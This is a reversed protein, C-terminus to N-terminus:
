RPWLQGFPRRRTVGTGWTPPQGCWHGGDPEMFTSVIRRDHAMVMLRSAGPLGAGTLRLILESVALSSIMTTYAIVSPDSMDLEPAYGEAKLEELEDPELQEARLRAQDIVEACQVCASGPVQVDLRGFIGRLNGDLSDLVVAMDLVPILCWYTLRAIALRGSEDDTCGFIVDCARLAHMAELTDAHADVVHVVTDLGIREANARLVETKKDGAQDISSGYVRTVNDETLVDFDVTTITGVGLRVLQEGTPSGTGGGGVIGVHLRRLLQQIPGGFALVQRNFAEPPPLPEPADVSSTFRFREGIERIMTIPGIAEAARWARGSFSLDDGDAHLVLSAYLDIGTRIQFVDRLDDDVGDDLPSMEAANVPHTHVFVASAGLEAARALAPMYASSDLALFRETQELYAGVPAPVFERGLLRLERETESRGVILVGAVEVPSAAAARLQASVADHISITVATM